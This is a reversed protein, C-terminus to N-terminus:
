PLRAAIRARWRRDLADIASDLFPNVEASLQLEVAAVTRSFFNKQALTTELERDFDDVAEAETVETRRALLRRLAGRSALDALAFPARLTARAASLAG